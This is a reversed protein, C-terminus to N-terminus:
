TIKPTVMDAFREPDDVTDIVPVDINLEQNGRLISLTLKERMPSRFIYGELQRANQMEHRNLSLVIDGIKVGAQDAPGGPVVDGVLIGWDQSLRLGEAIAPTITQVSIGIRGRHM